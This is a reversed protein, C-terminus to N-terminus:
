VIVSLHVSAEPINRVSVLLKTTSADSPGAKTAVGEPDGLAVVFADADGLTVRGADSEPVGTAPTAVGVNTIIEIAMVNM